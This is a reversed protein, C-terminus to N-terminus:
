SGYPSDFILACLEGPENTFNRSDNIPPKKLVDSFTDPNTQLIVYMM